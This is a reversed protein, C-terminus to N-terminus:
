PKLKEDYCLIIYGPLMHIVLSYVYSHKNISPLTLWDIM